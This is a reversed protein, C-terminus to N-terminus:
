LEDRPTAAEDASAQKSRKKKKIPPIPKARAEAPPAEEANSPAGSSAAAPVSATGRQRQKQEEHQKLLGLMGHREAKGQVSAIVNRQAHLEARVAPDKELVIQENLELRKATMLDLGGESTIDGIAQPCDLLAVSSPLFTHTFPPTHTHINTSPPLPPYLNSLSILSLSLPTSPPTLVEMDAKPPAHDEIPGTFSRRYTEATPTVRPPHYIAPSVVNSRIRRSWRPTNIHM